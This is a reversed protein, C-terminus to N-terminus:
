ESTKTTEEDDAALAQPLRRTHHELYHRACRVSCFYVVVLNRNSPSETTLIFSWDLPPVHSMRDDFHIVRREEVRKCVTCECPIRSIEGRKELWAALVHTIGFVRSTLQLPWFLNWVVLFLVDLPWKLSLARVRVRVDDSTMDFLMLVFAISLHLYLARLLLPSDALTGM